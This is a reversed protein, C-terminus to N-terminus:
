FVGVIYLICLALFTWAIITMAWNLIRFMTNVTKSQNSMVNYYKTESRFGAVMITAGCVYLMSNRVFHWLYYNQEPCNVTYVKVFYYGIAWLLTLLIISIYIYRESKKNHITQLWIFILSIIAIVATSKVSHTTYCPTLGKLLFYVITLFFLGTTIAHFIRTLIEKPSM